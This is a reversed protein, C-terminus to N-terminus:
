SEGLHKKIEDFRRRSNTDTLPYRVATQPNRDSVVGGAFSKFFEM